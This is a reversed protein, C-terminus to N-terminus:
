RRKKKAVFIISKEKNRWIDLADNKENRALAYPM